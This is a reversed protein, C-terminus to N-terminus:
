IVLIIFTAIVGSIIHWISHSKTTTWRRIFPFYTSGFLFIAGFLFLLAFIIIMLTNQANNIFKVTFVIILLVSFLYDVVGFLFEPKSINNRLFFWQQKVEYDFSHYIVSCILAISLLIWFLTYGKYVAITIPVIYILNSWIHPYKWFRLIRQM